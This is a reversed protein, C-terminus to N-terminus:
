VECTCPYRESSRSKESLSKNKFGIPGLFQVDAFIAYEGANFARFSYVISSRKNISIFVQEFGQKLSQPAIKQMVTFDLDESLRWEPFYVKRIATGGKFILIDRLQSNEWYIGSLLWTLAYDKELTAVDFGTKRARRRLENEDM